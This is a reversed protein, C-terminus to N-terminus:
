LIRAAASNVVELRGHNLKYAVDNGLREKRIISLSELKKLHRLIIRYKHTSTVLEMAKVEAEKEMRALIHISAPSTMTKFVDVARKYAALALKSNEQM